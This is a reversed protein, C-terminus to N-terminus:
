QLRDKCFGLVLVNSILYHIHSCRSQLLERDKTNSIEKELIAALSLQALESKFARMPGEMRLESRLWNAEPKINTKM